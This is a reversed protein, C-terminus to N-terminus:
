RRPWLLSRPMTRAASWCRSASRPLRPSTASRSSHASRERRSRPCHLLTHTPACRPPHLFTSRSPRSLLWVPRLPLSRRVVLDPCGTRNSKIPPEGARGLRRGHGQTWVVEVVVRSGDGIVFPPQRQRPHGSPVDARELLLSQPDRRQPWGDKGFWCAFALIRRVAP